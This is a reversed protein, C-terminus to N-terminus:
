VIEGFVVPYENFLIVWFVKILGTKPKVFPVSHNRLIIDKFAL